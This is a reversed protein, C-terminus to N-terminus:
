GTVSEVTDGRAVSLIVDVGTRHGETWLKATRGCIKARNLVGKTRTFFLTRNQSWKRTVM